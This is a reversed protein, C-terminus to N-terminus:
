LELEVTITVDRRSLSELLLSDSVGNLFRFILQRLLLKLVELEIIRMAERSKQNIHKIINTM